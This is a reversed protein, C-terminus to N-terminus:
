LEAMLRNAKEGLFQCKRKQQDLLTKKDVEGDRIAKRSSKASLIYKKIDSIRTETLKKRMIMIKREVLM